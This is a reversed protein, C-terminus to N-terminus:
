NFYIEQLEVLIQELIANLVLNVQYEIINMGLEDLDIDAIM